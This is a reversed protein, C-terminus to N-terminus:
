WHERVDVPPTSKRITFSQCNWQQVVNAETAYRLKESQVEGQRVLYTLGVTKFHNWIFCIDWIFTIGRARRPSCKVFLFFTFIYTQSVETIKKATLYCLHNAKLGWNLFSFHSQPGRNSERQGQEWAGGDGREQIACRVVEIQAEARINTDWSSTKVQFVCTFYRHGTCLWM